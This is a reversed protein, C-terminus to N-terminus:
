RRLLMEHTTPGLSSMSAARQSVDLLGELGVHPQAGHLAQHLVEEILLLHGACQDHIGQVAAALLDLLIPTQVSGQLHAGQGWATLNSFQHRCVARWTHPRSMCLAPKAPAQASAATAKHVLPHNEPPRGAAPRGPQVSRMAHLHVVQLAKRMGAHGQSCDPRANACRFSMCISSTTWPLRLDAVLGMTVMLATRM